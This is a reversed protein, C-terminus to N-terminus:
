ASGLASWAIGKYIKKPDAVNKLNVTQKAEDVYTIEHEASKADKPGKFMYVDQVAPKWEDSGGEAPAAGGKAAAIAAAAESWSNAAVTDVGCEAGAATLQEVAADDGADAATGVAEWDVAEAPASGSQDDVGAAGNSAAASAPADKAEGDFDTRVRGPQNTTPNTPQWTHFRFLIRSKIMAGFLNELEAVAGAGGKLQGTAAGLKRLENLMDAWHEDFSKPNSFKKPDDCLPITMSAQRGFCDVPQSNKVVGAFYVFPEGKSDGTKYEGFHIDSLEALGSINPPLDGGGSFDTEDNKHAQLAKDAGKKMLKGHLPNAAKQAPM